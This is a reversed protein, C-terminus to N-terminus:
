RAKPYRPNQSFRYGLSLQFTPTRYIDQSVRQAGVGSANDWVNQTMRFDLQVSPSLQYGVGLLYGLSFRSNFDVLSIAPKESVMPNTGAPLKDPEAQPFDIEEANIRFNYAMNVGGMFNVKGAAYRLAVPLEISQLTSFKFFHEVKRRLVVNDDNSYTTYDDKLTTGNNFRQLYKLEAMANWNEGFTLQGTVGLQFGYINATGMKSANIGGIIGPYFKIQALNFKADRMFEDFSRADWKSTKRSGTKFKSLPVLSNSEADAAAAPNASIGASSSGPKAASAYTNNDQPQSTETKDSVQKAAAAPITKGAKKNNTNKDNKVLKKEDAAEKNMLATENKVWQDLAIEGMAITDLIMTGTMSVPNILYRKVVNISQFTDKKLVFPQINDPHQKATANDAIPSSAPTVSSAAPNVAKRATGSAPTSSNTTRNSGPLSNAVASAVPNNLKNNRNSNGTSNTHNGSSIAPTNSTRNAAGTYANVDNGVTRAPETASLSAASRVNHDINGSGTLGPNTLGRNNDQTTNSANIREPATNGAATIDNGAAANDAISQNVTTATTHSNGGTPVSNDVAAIAKEKGAETRSSSIIQYSGVTATALLVLGTLVGMMRRWQFGGAARNVPMQQDLLDRMHLWAGSREQEEVGSLRQKILDDINIMNKDM